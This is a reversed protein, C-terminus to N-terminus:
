NSRTIGTQTEGITKLVLRFTIADTPQIDRDEFFTRTARTTFVVCEDEYTLNLGVSRTESAALDRVTNMGGRWFRNFKSNASFNVEERGAFESDEQRELFIYNAQVNFAAVGARIEAENRNPSLNEPSFRTRYKLNFYSGPSVEARGVIDSINDELGSGKAFTDDAKLRYSQGLFLRTSGGSEGFIDWKLGYSLRPGGEVKDFGSFRNTSFLNTEDFELETSDENPINSSNGGYPSVIIKAVPEITQNIKGTSKVFPIRWDLAAYPVARYEFGSFEDGNTKSLNSVHYVDATMGASLKYLDGLPGQFPREWKPHLSLRRVDTGKERTLTLFNADLYTRGGFRDRRSVHNYDLLPFVYPITRDDNNEELSQFVMARASFYNRERFGEIFLKSNLSQPSSFGFRRMYTDDSAHKLDFGWRWTRDLAFRGEADIHGRVGLSGKETGYEVDGSNNKISTALELKGKQMLNRYELSLIPGESTTIIPTITADENPSINWFYPTQLVAGLDSSNGFTPFLFGSKRRVTPDPHRFYPTYLVPFGAVELWADRYEIVQEDKDHVVRVAKLQWLPPKSPDDKCLNCPSYVANRMDTIRGNSRRAGLGAIRAHDQLIIGINEIVADKLDGSIEMTEGFIREGTPETIAVNGSASVVNTNQNYTIKDAVLTRDDFGIEINGTATIIGNERDVSMEDAALHIAKEDTETPETSPIPSGGQPTPADQRVVPPPPAVPSYDQRFLTGLPREPTGSEVPYITPQQFARPAARPAARPISPPPSAPAPNLRPPTSGPNFLIGLPPPATPESSYAPAARDSNDFLVGLPRDGLPKLPPAPQSRPPRALSPNVTSVPPEIQQIQQQPPPSSPYWLRGLPRESAPAPSRTTSPAPAPSVTAGDILIGLPRDSDATNAFVPAILNATTSAVISSVMLGKLVITWTKSRRDTM